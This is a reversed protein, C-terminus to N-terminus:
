EDKGGKNVFDLVKKYAFYQGSKYSYEAGILDDNIKDYIIKIKDELFKIFKAENDQYIKIKVMLNDIIDKDLVELEEKRM